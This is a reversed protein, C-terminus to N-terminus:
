LRLHATRRRQSAAAQGQRTTYGRHDRDLSNNKGNNHSVRRHSCLTFAVKELQREPLSWTREQNVTLPSPSDGTVVDDGRWERDREGWCRGRAGDMAVRVAVLGIKRAPRREVWAFPCEAKMGWHRFSTTSYQSLHGLEALV